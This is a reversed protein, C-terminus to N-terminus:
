LAFFIIYLLKRVLVYIFLNICLYIFVLGTWYFNYYHWLLPRIWFYNRYQSLFIDTWLYGAETEPEQWSYLFMQQLVTKWKSKFREIICRLLPFLGRVFYTQDWKDYFLIHYDFNSKGNQIMMVEFFHKALNRSVSLGSPVRM